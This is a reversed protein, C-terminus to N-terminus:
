YVQLMDQTINECIKEPFGIEKVSGMDCSNELARIVIVRLRETIPLEVM